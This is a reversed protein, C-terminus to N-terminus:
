DILHNMGITKDFPEGKKLRDTINYKKFENDIDQFEKTTDLWALIKTIEDNIASIKKACSYRYVVAAVIILIIFLLTIASSLEPM